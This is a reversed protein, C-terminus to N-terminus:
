PEPAARADAIREAADKAWKDIAGKVDDLTSFATLNFQNGPDAQVAAALQAGTLSDVLEGEMAAGGTGAGAFRAAPHLKQWPTSKAVGTLALRLRAVGPGPADALPIGQATIVGEAAARFYDAAEAREDPTLIGSETRIEVPDVLVARYDRLAPSVFRSRDPGAPELSAYDSLFGSETPAPASACAPLLLAPLLLLLVLALPHPTPRM